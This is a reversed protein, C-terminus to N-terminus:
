SAFLSSTPNADLLDFTGDGQYRAYFSSLREIIEALVGNEFLDARAAFGIEITYPEEMPVAVTGEPTGFVLSIGPVFTIADGM